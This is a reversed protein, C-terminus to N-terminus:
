SPREGLQQQLRLIILSIAASMKKFNKPVGVRDIFNRKMPDGQKLEFMITLVVLPTCVFELMAWLMLCIANVIPDNVM